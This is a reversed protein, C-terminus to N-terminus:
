GLYLNNWHSCKHSSTIRDIVVLLQVLLQV